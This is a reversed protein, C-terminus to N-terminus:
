AKPKIIVLDDDDYEVSCRNALLGVLDDATEYGGDMGRLYMVYNPTEAADDIRL